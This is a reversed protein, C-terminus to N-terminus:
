NGPRTGRSWGKVLTQFLSTALPFAKSWTSKLLGVQYLRWTARSKGSPHLSSNCSALLGGFGTFKVTTKMLTCLCENAVSQKKREESEGLTHPNFLNCLSLLWLLFMMLEMRWSHKSTLPLLNFTLLLFNLCEETRSLIWGKFLRDDEREVWIREREKCMNERGVGCGVCLALLLGLMRFWMQNYTLHTYSEVLLGTM